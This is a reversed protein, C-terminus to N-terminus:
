TIEITLLQECLNYQHKVPHVPPPFMFPCAYRNHVLNLLVTVKAFKYVYKIGLPVLNFKPFLRDTVIRFRILSM